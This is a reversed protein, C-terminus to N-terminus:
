LIKFNVKTMLLCHSLLSQICVNYKILISYKIIWKIKNKLQELSKLYSSITSITTSSTCVKFSAHQYKQGPATTRVVHLLSVLLNIDLLVRSKLLQVLRHTLRISAEMSLM